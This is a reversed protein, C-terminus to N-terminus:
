EAEKYLTYERDDFEGEALWFKPYGKPDYVRGNESPLIEMRIMDIGSKMLVKVPNPHAPCTIEAGPKADKFAVM